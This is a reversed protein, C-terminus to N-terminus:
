EEVQTLEVKLMKGVPLQRGHYDKPPISIVRQYKGDKSKKERIRAYFVMDAM